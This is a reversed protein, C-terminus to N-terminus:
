RDALERLVDRGDAIIQRGIRQTTPSVRIATGASGKVSAVKTRAAAHLKGERPAASGKSTTRRHQTM